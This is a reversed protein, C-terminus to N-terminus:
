TSLHEQWKLRYSLLRFRIEGPDTERVSWAHFPSLPVGEMEAEPVIRRQPIDHARKKQPIRHM